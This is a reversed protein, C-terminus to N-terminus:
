IIFKALGSVKLTKFGLTKCKEQRNDAYTAILGNTMPIVAGIHSHTWQVKRVNLYQASVQVIQGNLKIKL